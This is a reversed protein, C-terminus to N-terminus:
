AQNCEAVTRVAALKEELTRGAPAVSLIDIGAAAFAQLRETIRGAPGVLALGDILEAPVAAEAERRRGGLFADTIVEAEKEFGYGNVLSRYFNQKRTGMGGILLSLYPRYVDRAADRDDNIVVATSCAIRVADRDRGHAVLSRDFHDRAPGFREPYVLAPLWGDALEGALAINRPGMAALYVPVPAPEKIVLKLPRQGTQLPLQIQEGRYDVPQRALALRLIALYDRTRQIPHSWPQGYWGESVQPGSVGLGIVFRDGFLAALTAATMATTTPPRAPIQMVASGIRLRSTHAGLWAMLSVADAGYLEPVWVISYGSREAESVVALMEDAGRRSGDWTGLLIGLEVRRM